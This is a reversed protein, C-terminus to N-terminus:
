KGLGHVSVTVRYGRAFAETLAQASVAGGRVPHLYVLVGRRLVPIVEQQLASLDRERSLPMIIEQARELVARLVKRGGPMYFKPSATVWTREPLSLPLAYTASTEYQVFYGTQLFLRALEGTLDHMAPEGGTIVVHQIHKYSHQVWELIEACTLDRWREVRRKWDPRLTIRPDHVAEPTDCWRCGVDCGQTRIIVAPTGAHTGVWQLGACVENIPVTAAAIEAIVPPSACGDEHVPTCVDERAARAAAGQQLV